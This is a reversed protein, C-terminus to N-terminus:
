MKLVKGVIDGAVARDKLKLQFKSIIKLIVLYGVRYGCGCGYAFGCVVALLWPSIFRCKIIVGRGSGKSSTNKAVM